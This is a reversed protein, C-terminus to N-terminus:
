FAEDFRFGSYDHGPFVLADPSITKRLRSLSRLLKRESGGPFDTRGVGHYFLTDGSILLGDKENYLCCSGETHGPTWIVKWLSLAKFVEEGYNLERGSKEDFELILEGLNKEDELMFDANPLGVLNKIFHATGPDFMGNCHAEFQVESANEGAMFADESHIAIRISPFAEKLALTGAIHDFHGHTLVVLLPEMGTEKLSSIFSEDDGTMKSFDPDVIFCANVGLPVVFTNVLYIGTQYKIIKNM